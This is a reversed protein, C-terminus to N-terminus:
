SRRLYYLLILVLPLSIESLILRILTPRYRM